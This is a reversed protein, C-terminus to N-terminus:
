FFSQKENVKSSTKLMTQVRLSEKRILSATHTDQIQRSATELSNQASWLREYDPHTMPTNRLVGGLLVRYRPIREMPIALLDSLLQM